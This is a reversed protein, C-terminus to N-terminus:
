RNKGIWDFSNNVMNVIEKHDNLDQNYFTTMRWNKDPKHYNGDMDWYGFDLVDGSDIEGFDIGNLTYYNELEEVDIKAIDNLWDSLDSESRVILGLGNCVIIGHSSEFTLREQSKTM